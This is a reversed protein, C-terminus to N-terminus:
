RVFEPYDVVKVLPRDSVTGNASFNLPLFDVGIKLSKSTSGIKFSLSNNEGLKRIKIEFPQFYGDPLGAQLGYEKFKDAIYRASVRGEPTDTGRGKREPAALYDIHHKIHSLEIAPINVAPQGIQEAPGSTSVSSCSLSVM